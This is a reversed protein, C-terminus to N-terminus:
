VIRTSEKDTEELVVETKGLTLKDGFSLVIEDGRM